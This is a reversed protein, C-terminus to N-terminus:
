RLRICPDTFLPDHGVVWIQAQSRENQTM